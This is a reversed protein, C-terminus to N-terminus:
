LKWTQALGTTLENCHTGVLCPVAFNNYFNHTHVLPHVFITQNNSFEILACHDLHGTAADGSSPLVTCKENARELSPNACPVDSSDLGRLQVPCEDAVCTWTGSHGCANITAQRQTQCVLYLPFHVIRGSSVRVALLMM